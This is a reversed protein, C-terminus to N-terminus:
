DRKHKARHQRIAAQIVALTTTDVSYKPATDNSASPSLHPEAIIAEPFFKEMFRSMLNVAIVLLTLFVFVTGMGFILLDLAQALLTSQM